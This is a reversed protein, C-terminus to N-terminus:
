TQLSSSHQPLMFARSLVCQEAAGRCSPALVVLLSSGLGMLSVLAISDWSGFGATVNPEWALETAFRVRAQEEAM